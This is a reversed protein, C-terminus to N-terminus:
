IGGSSVSIRPRLFSLDWFSEAASILPGLSVGTQVDKYNTRLARKFM